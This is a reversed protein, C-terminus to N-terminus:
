YKILLDNVIRFSLCGQGGYFASFSVESPQAGRLDVIYTLVYTAGPIDYCGAQSVEIEGESPIRHEVPRYQGYSHESFLVSSTTCYLIIILKRTKM